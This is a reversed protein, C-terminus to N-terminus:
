EEVLTLNPKNSVVAWRLIADRTMERRVFKFGEIPRNEHKAIWNGLLRADVNSGRVSAINMFAEKLDGGPVPKFPANAFGPATAESIAQVFQSAEIAERVTHGRPNDAGLKMRWAVLLNRLALFDPDQGRVRQTTAVPDERGLWVLAGRVLRSWDDFSQLAEMDASFGPCGALIHARLITIAAHVYRRRDRMVEAVPDRKFKRTEPREMSTDLDCVVVRRNMDGVVRMQNGTAALTVRNEVEMTLNEGLPRIQVYPREIIQCLLDGKLDGNVNDLSLLSVGRQMLGSLRKEQEEEKIGFSVVPCIRGAAIVSAIDVLYSKGSGPMAARFAHLPVVDMASRGITTLILSIAVSRDANGTVMVEDFLGDLLAMAELADGRVPKEHAWASCDALDAAFAAYLRSAPDYGPCCLVSGDPRLTPCTVVGAIAPLKWWGASALLVTALDVPPDCRKMDKKRADYKQWTSVRSMIRQLDAVGLPRLTLTETKQRRGAPLMEIVPRVLHQARHMVPAGGALIVLEAAQVRTELDGELTVSLGDRGQSILPHDPTFSAQGAALAFDSLAEGTEGSGGEPVKGSGGQLVKGSGGGGGGDGGEGSGGEGAGGPGIKIPARTPEPRWGKRIKQYYSRWVNRTEKQLWAVAGIDMGPINSFGDSVLAHVDDLSLGLVVLMGVLRFGRGSNSNDGGPLIEGTLAANVAPDARGALLRRKAEELGIDPISAAIRREEAFHAEDGGADANGDARGRASGTGGGPLTAAYARIAAAVEVSLEGMAGECVAEGTLAYFRNGTHIDICPAHAERGPRWVAGGWAGDVRLASLVAHRQAARMRLYAKLGTGSPSVEVAGGLLPLLAAAWDALGEAGICSDLDVGVLAEGTTDDGLMIGIGGDCAKTNRARWAAVAEDIALATGPDNPRLKAGGVGYPV